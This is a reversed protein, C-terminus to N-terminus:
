RLVVTYIDSIRTTYCPSLCEQKLKWKKGNGMIAFKVANKGFSKNIKDITSNLKQKRELNIDESFLNTQLSNQPTIEHLFVGAKKYKYGKRFIKNLGWIAYTILDPAFNSPYPLNMYISNSYQPLDKRFRNSHIFVTIASCSSKQKRLKQSARNVFTSVSEGIADKNDLMEGFSRSVCINQKNPTVEELEICPLGRLEYVMRLGQISLLKKVWADPKNILELATFVGNKNLLQAYQRGIGWLDGVEVDKLYTEIEIPNILELVGVEKFQKKAIRNALKALTKTPAIGISIPIKTNQKVVKKIEKCYDLLNFHEFGNFDLFIEDVSYVEYNPVYSGIISMVRNSIDGYLAYNSSFININKEIALDKIEFAPVGMKVGCEKAENSRAIVCGDNNSLVVVPKGELDPRFLRECSAYFNNCDALAYM